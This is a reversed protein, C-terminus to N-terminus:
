GNSGESRAWLFGFSANNKRNTAARISGDKIGTKRSAELFSNHVAILNGDISFQFVKEGRFKRAPKRGLSAIGNFDDAFRWQFGKCHTVKGLCAEAVGCRNGSVSQEAEIITRHSAVFNGLLDFQLVRRQHPPNSKLAMSIKLRTANSHKVGLCSGARPSVNYGGTPSYSRFFTIWFQEREILREKDPECQELVESYFSDPSQNFARQLHQSHHRNKRLDTFHVGIRKRIRCSSGIYLKGTDRNVIAYVGSTKLLSDM